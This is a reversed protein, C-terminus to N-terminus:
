STESGFFRSGSKTNKFYSGKYDIRQSCREVRPGGQLTLRRSGAGFLANLFARVTRQLNPYVQSRKRMTM